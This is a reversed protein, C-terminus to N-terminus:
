AIGSGLNLGGTPHGPIGLKSGKRRCRLILECETCILGEGPSKLILHPLHFLLGVLLNEKIGMPLSPLAETASEVGNGHEECQDHNAEDHVDEVGLM